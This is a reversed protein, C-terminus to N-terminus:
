PGGTIGRVWGCAKKETGDKKLLGWHAEELVPIGLFRPLRGKKGFFSEYIQGRPEPDILECIQMYPIDAGSLAQYCTKLLEVQDRQRGWGYGGIPPKYGVTPYGLEVYYISHGRGRIFEVADLLRRRLGRNTFAYIWVGVHADIAIVDFEMREGYKVFWDKWGGLGCNLNMFPNPYPVMVVRADPNFEHALRSFSNFHEVLRDRHVYPGVLPNWKYGYLNCELMWVYNHLGLGALAPITKEADRRLAEQWGPRDKYTPNHILNLNVDEFEEAARRFHDPPPKGLEGFMSVAKIGLSKVRPFIERADLVELVNFLVRLRTM